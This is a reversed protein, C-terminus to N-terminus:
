CQDVDVGNYTIGDKKEVHILERRYLLVALSTANIQEMKSIRFEVSQNPVCIQSWLEKWPVVANSM